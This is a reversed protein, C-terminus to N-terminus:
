NVYNDEKVLRFKGAGGDVYMDRARDRGDPRVDGDPTRIVVEITEDEDVNFVRLVEESNDNTQQGEGTSTEDSM